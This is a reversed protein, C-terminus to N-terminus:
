ERKMFFTYEGASETGVRGWRVEQVAALHLKYKPIEKALTMLSAAGYLSRVNWTGFRVDM